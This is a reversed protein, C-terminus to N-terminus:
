HSMTYSATIYRPERSLLFCKTYLKIAAYITSYRTEKPPSDTSIATAPLELVKLDSNIVSSKGYYTTNRRLKVGAGRKTVAKGVKPLEAYTAPLTDTTRGADNQNIKISCENKKMSIILFLAHAHECCM